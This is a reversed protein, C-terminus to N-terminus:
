RAFQVDLSRLYKQAGMNLLLDFILM